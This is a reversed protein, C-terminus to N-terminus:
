ASLEQGQDNKLRNPVKEGGRRLKTNSNLKELLIKLQDEISLVSSQDKKTPKQDDEPVIQEDAVVEEPEDPKDSKGEIAESTETLTKFLQDLADPGTNHRLTQIIEM